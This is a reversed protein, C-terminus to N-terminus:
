GQLYRAGYGREVAYARSAPADYLSTREASNLQATAFAPPAGYGHQQPQMLGEQEVSFIVGEPNQVDLSVQSGHTVLRSDDKELWLWADGASARWGTPKKGISVLTATGNTATRVICQQRSVYPNQSAMDYRGLVQEEGAGITYPRTTRGSSDYAAGGVQASL